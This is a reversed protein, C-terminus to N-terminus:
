KQEYTLTLKAKQTLSTPQTKISENYTVTVTFQVTDNAPLVNEGDDLSLNQVTYVIPDSDQNNAKTLDTQETMSSDNPGVLLEVDTLKADITGSNKVTVTYVVVDGPAILTADFNATTSNYTPTGISTTGDTTSSSHSVTGSISSIGVNWNSSIKATGNITLQQAFAAYGVGMILIVALLVGILINKSRSEHKENM